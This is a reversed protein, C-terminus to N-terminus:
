QKLHFGVVMNCLFSFAEDLVEISFSMTIGTVNVTSTSKKWLLVLRSVLHDNCLIFGTHLVLIGRGGVRRGGSVGPTFQSVHQTLISSCLM